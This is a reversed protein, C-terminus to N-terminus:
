EDEDDDEFVGKKAPAKAPKEEPEDDDNDSEEDSVSAVSDVVVKTDTRIGNDGTKTVQILSTDIELGILDTLEYARGEEIDEGLLGQVIRGLNSKGSMKLSYIGTFLKGIYPKGKNSNAGRVLWELKVLTQPGYEGGESMWPESIGNLRIRYYGDVPTSYEDRNPEVLELKGKATKRHMQTIVGTRATISVGM